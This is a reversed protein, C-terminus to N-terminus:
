PVGGRAGEPLGGHGMRAALIRSTEIKMKIVMMAKPDIIGPPDYTNTELQLRVSEVWTKVQVKGTMMSRAIAKM